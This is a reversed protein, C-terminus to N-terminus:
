FDREATARVSARRCPAGISGLFAIMKASTLYPRLCANNFASCRRINHPFLAGGGRSDRAHFDGGDDDRGHAHRIQAIDSRREGRRFLESRRCDYALTTLARLANDKGKTAGFDTELGWFATIVAAPVGYDKDSRFLM